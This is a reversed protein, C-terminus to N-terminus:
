GARLRREAEELTLGLEAVVAALDVGTALGAVAIAAAQRRRDTARYYVELAVRPSHGAQDVYLGIPLGADLLNSCFRRRLGHPTFQREYPVDRHVQVAVVRDSWGSGQAIDADPGNPPRDAELVDAVEPPVAVRRVKQRATKRHGDADPNEGVLLFTGTPTRVLDRWRLASLEGVRVGCRWCLLIARRVPSPRMDALLAEVEADEPTHHRYVRDEPAVPGRVGADNPTVTPTDWGRKRGWRLAIGLMALAQNVTSVSYPKGNARPGSTQHAVRRADWAAEREARFAPDFLREALQECVDDDLEALPLEGLGDSLLACRQGYEKLTRPKRRAHPPRAEHWALFGRLLDVVLPGADRSRVGPASERPERHPRLAASAPATPATRAPPPDPVASNKSTGAVGDSTRLTCAAQAAGSVEQWRRAAAALVEGEEVRGLARQKQVGRERWVLRWSWAQGAARPARHACISAECRGSPGDLWVPIPEPRQSQPHEHM